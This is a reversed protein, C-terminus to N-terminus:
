KRFEEFDDNWSLDVPKPKKDFTFYTFFDKYFSKRWFHYTGIPVECIDWQVKRMGKKFLRGQVETTKDAVKAITTHSAEVHTIHSFGKTLYWCEDAARKVNLDLGDYAQTNIFVRTNNHRLMNFWEEDSNSWKAYNRAPWITKGEDLLIVADTFDHSYLWNKDVDYRLVGNVFEKIMPIKYTDKYPYQCYVKLGQKNCARSILAFLTSKGAGKDATIVVCTPLLCHKSMRFNLLNM